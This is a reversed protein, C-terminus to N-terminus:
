IGLLKRLQDDSAKQKAPAAGARAVVHARRAGRKAVRKKTTTPTDTTARDPSTPGTAAVAAPAPAPTVVPAPAIMATQTSVGSGLTDAQSSYSHVVLVAVVVATLAAFGVGGLVMIQLKKASRRPPPMLVAYNIDV